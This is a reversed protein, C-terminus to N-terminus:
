KLDKVYKVNVTSLFYKSTECFILTPLKIPINLSNFFDRSCAKLIYLGVLVVEVKACYHGM